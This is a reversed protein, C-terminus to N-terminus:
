GQKTFFLGYRRLVVWYIMHWTYLIVAIGASAEVPQSETAQSRENEYHKKENNNINLSNDGSKAPAGSLINIMRKPSEESRMLFEQANYYLWLINKTVGISNLNSVEGSYPAGEPEFSVGLTRYNTQTDSVNNLHYYPLDFLKIPNNYLIGGDVYVDGDDKVPIRKGNFKIHIVHPKFVGPISCSARIADSIIVQELDQTTNESAFRKIEPNKDKTILTAIVHLPM